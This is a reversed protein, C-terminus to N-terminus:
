DEKVIYGFPVIGHIITQWHQYAANEHPIMCYPKQPAFEFGSEKKAYYGDWEKGTGYDLLDYHEKREYYDPYKEVFAALDAEYKKMDELYLAYKKDAEDIEAQAQKQIAAWIDPSITKQFKDNYQPYLFNDYDVIKLGTKNYRYNWQRIFGWMICGAQFGTIGGQPTNDMAWATAAAGATLAHCITGYDHGYDNLLHHIFDPLKDLTMKRAEEFWQEHVGM